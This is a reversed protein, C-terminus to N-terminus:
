LANVNYLVVVRLCRSAKNMYKILYKYQVSALLLLSIIIDRNRRLHRCGGHLSTIMQNYLKM